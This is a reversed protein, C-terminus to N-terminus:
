AARAPDHEDLWHEDGPLRAGLRKFYTQRGARDIARSVAVRKGLILGGTAKAAHHADIGHNELVDEGAEKLLYARMDRQQFQTLKPQVYVAKSKPQDMLAGDAAVWGCFLTEFQSLGARTAVFAPPVHLFLHLHEGKASATERVYLWVVPFQDGSSMGAPRQRRLWTGVRNMLRTIRTPPDMEGGVRAWHVTVHVNPTRKLEYSAFHLANVAKIVDTNEIHVSARRHVPAGPARRPRGRRSIPTNSSESDM